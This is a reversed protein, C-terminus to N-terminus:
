QQATLFVDWAWRGAKVKRADDIKARYRFQNGYSDTLRSEKYDLHLAKIGLSALTHLEGPESVGNHNVDQWLRLETFIADKSDILGDGNGGNIPTDFAALPIFGNKNASQLQPTL